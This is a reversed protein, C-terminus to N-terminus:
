PNPSSPPQRGNHSTWTHLKAIIVVRASSPDLRPNTLRNVRRTRHTRRSLRAIISDSIRHKWPSSSRGRTTQLTSPRRLVMMIGRHLEDDSDSNDTRPAHPWNTAHVPMPELAAQSARDPIDLRQSMSSPHRHRQTAVKIRSEKHTQTEHPYGPQSHHHAEHEM